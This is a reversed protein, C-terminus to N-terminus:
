SLSAVMLFLSSATTTAYLLLEHQVPPSSSIFAEGTVGFL